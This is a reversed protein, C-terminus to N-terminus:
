KPASKPKAFSGDVRIRHDVALMHRREIDLSDPFFPNQDWNVKRVISGPPPNLIYDVYVPDIENEANMSIWIESNPRRMVTPILHRLSEKWIGQGEELWVKTVGDASRVSAPNNRLGIFRFSSGTHPCFIGERTVRFWPTLGLADIKDRL